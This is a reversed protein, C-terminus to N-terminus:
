MKCGRAPDALAKSIVSVFRNENGVVQRLYIDQVPNHSKSLTFAGRPSDIKAKEIASVFGARKSIDGKVAALGIGLMQAADYGQVAFVDPQLKYTKAYALRFANDRATGLSDAYHLTTLLGEAAAGQAELTGDTLFGPGYLPISKKLGAAAYDKVFKVAGGGSFFTYVADPKTAAIETLLAQFEVNPFPLTLEKVVKGGAKEFSEKFGNVSEDGAAYKWTITVVKKHGKKAVVEGMAYGPQWNTFSSRFINPACMAGTVVDAGANPVILITGTDKAVKAMAMAVGSHVTGVLVDVNDRKILKNVNDTAKSPDSEDDVKIFEIERGSLKGGKEALYLRFGNEIANGLSAYTGTYPLMLGVKLKASTQAM